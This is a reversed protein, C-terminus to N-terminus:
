CVIVFFSCSFTLTTWLLLFFGYYCFSLNSRDVAKTTSLFFNNNSLFRLYFDSADGVLVLVLALFVGLGAVGVAAFLVDALFTTVNIEVDDDGGDM